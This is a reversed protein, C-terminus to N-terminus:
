LDNFLPHYHVVGSVSALAQPRLELAMFAEDPVEYNCRLGFQSAAHFGFRPYYEPHGLVVVGAVGRSRCADLGDRVLKSGVGRKQHQRAVAMPALGWVALDQEPLFHCPSFLIHGIIQKDSEAVLSVLTACHEHLAAVLAAEGAGDFADRHLNTLADSDQEQAPRISFQLDSMM